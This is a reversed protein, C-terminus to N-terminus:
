ASRLFCRYQCLVSLPYLNFRSQLLNFFISSLNFSSKAKDHQGCSADTSVFGAFPIFQLSISSSQLLNLLISSSQLFISLLNLKTMSVAPLMQVSLACESPIFQLSISSSQLLNLLISSSQLLNFSSKAKDHQGCSADTSVFCAFPIFQLSISSSQLLNLFISLSQLSISLLNLKTMSVAPLM